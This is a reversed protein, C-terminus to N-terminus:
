INRLVLSESHSERERSGRSFKVLLSSRMSLFFVWPICLRLQFINFFRQAHLGAKRKEGKELVADEFHSPLTKLSMKQVGLGVLSDSPTFNGIYSRHDKSSDPLQPEAARSFGFMFTM